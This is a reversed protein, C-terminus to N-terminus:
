CGASGPEPKSPSPKSVTAKGPKPKAVSATTKKVNNNSKNVKM